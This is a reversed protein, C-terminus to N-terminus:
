LEDNQQLTTTSLTENEIANLQFLPTNLDEIFFTNLKNQIINQKESKISLKWLKLTGDISASIIQNHNVKSLSVCTNKHATYKKTIFGTSTNIYIIEGTPSPTIIEDNELTIFDNNFSIGQTGWEQIETKIADYEQSFQM